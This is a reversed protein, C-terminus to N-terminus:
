KGHEDDLGLLDLHMITEEISDNISTDGAIINDYLNNDHVIFLKATLNINSRCSNGIARELFEKLLLKEEAPSLGSERNIDLHKPGEQLINDKKIHGLLILNALENVEYNLMSRVKTEAPTIAYPEPEASVEDFKEIVVKTNINFMNKIYRELFTQYFINRELVFDPGEEHKHEIEVHIAGGGSDRNFFRPLSMDDQIACINDKSISYDIPTHIIQNPVFPKANPNLDSFVLGFSSALQPNAENHEAQDSTKQAVIKYKKAGFIQKESEFDM